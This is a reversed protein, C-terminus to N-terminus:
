KKKGRRELRPLKSRIKRKDQWSVKIRPVTRLKFNKFNMRRVLIDWFIEM